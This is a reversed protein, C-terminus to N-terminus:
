ISCFAIMTAPGQDDPSHRILLRFHGRLSYVAVEGFYYGGEAAAVYVEGSIKGRRGQPAAELV